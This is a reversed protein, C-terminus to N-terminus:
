SLDPLEQKVEDIEAWPNLRWSQIHKMANRITFHDGSKIKGLESWALPMAVGAAPRARLSFTSASTAGRGNRLWDM